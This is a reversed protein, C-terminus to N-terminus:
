TDSVVGEELDDMIRSKAVAAYHDGCDRSMDELYKRALDHENCRVLAALFAEYLQVWHHTRRFPLGNYSMGAERLTTFMREAKRADNALGCCEILSKYTKLNPPYDLRIMTNVTRLAGAVNSEGAYTQVISECAARTPKIGLTEITRLLSMLEDGSREVPGVRLMLYNLVKPVDFGAAKMDEALSVALKERGAGVTAVIIATYLEEDPEGCVSCAERFAALAQDVEGAKDYGSVLSTYTLRNARLGRRQMHRFVQSAKDMRGASAYAAILTSYTVVNPRLRLHRMNHFAQALKDMYGMKGCAHILANYAPVTPHLSPFEIPLERMTTFARDVMGSRGCADVLSCLTVRDPAINAKRMMGLVAFAQVPQRARACAHVLSNYTVINPRLGARQMEHLVTLAQRLAFVTGARACAAIATSYTVVTPSVGATRMSNLIRLAVDLQGWKGCGRILIDYTHSNPVINYIQIMEKTLSFANEMNGANCCSKLLNNYTVINLCIGSSRMIKAVQFARSMDGLEACAVVVFNYAKANPAINDRKMKELVHFARNADGARGCCSLLAEYTGHNPHLGSDRQMRSIVHLASLVRGTRACGEVVANYTEINRLNVGDRRMSRMIQFVNHLPRTRACGRILAEYLKESRPIGDLKMREVIASAQELANCRAAADVAHEYVRSKGKSDLLLFSNSSLIRVAGEVDGVRGYASVLYSFTRWTPLVRYRPFFDTLVQIARTIQSSESYFKVLCDLATQSVICPRANVVASVADDVRGAMILARVRTDLVHLVNAVNSPHSFAATAAPELSAAFDEHSGRKRTGLLDIINSSASGLSNPRQPRRSSSATCAYPTLVHNLTAKQPGKPLLLPLSFALLSDGM